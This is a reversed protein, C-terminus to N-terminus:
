RTRLLRRKPKVSHRIAKVDAELLTNTCQDQLTASCPPYASLAGPVTGLKATHEPPLDPTAPPAPVEVPPMPPSSPGPPMPIDPVVPNEQPDAMQASLMAPAAILVLSIAGANLLLKLKM